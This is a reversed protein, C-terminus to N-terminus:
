KAELVTAIQKYVKWMDYHEVIWDRYEVSNYHHHRILHVADQITDWFCEDPFQDVSGVFRHVIPKLGAAMGEIVCNPNGEVPSTLLIYQHKDFVANIDETYGRIFVNKLGYHRIYNYTRKCTVNGYINFTYDKMQMAIQLLLPIGKKFNVDALILVDHGPMRNKLPIEELDTANAILSSNPLHMARHIFWNVMFVHDFNTWDIATMDNHWFEYSRIFCIYKAALKPHSGLWEAGLDAWGSIIADYKTLEEIPLKECWDFEHGGATFYKAMHKVWCNEWPSLLLIKM